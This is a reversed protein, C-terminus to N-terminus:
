TLKGPFIVLRPNIIFQYRDQAIKDVPYHYQHVFEKFAPHLACITYNSKVILTNIDLKDTKILLKFVAKLCVFESLTHLRYHFYSTQAVTVQCFFLWPLSYFSIRDIGSKNQM